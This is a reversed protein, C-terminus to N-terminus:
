VFAAFAVSFTNIPVGSKGLSWAAKLLLHPATLRHYLVCGMSVTYTAMQAVAALSVIANSADSSGLDIFSLTIPTL